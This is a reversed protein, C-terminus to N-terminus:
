EIGLNRKVPNIFIFISFVVSIAPAAAISLGKEKAAASLHSRFLLTSALATAPACPLLGLLGIGYYWFGLACVIMGMFAL